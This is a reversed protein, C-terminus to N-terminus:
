RASTSSTNYSYLGYCMIVQLKNNATDREQVLKTLQKKLQQIENNMVEKLPQSVYLDVESNHERTKQSLEM